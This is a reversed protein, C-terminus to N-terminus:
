LTSDSINIWSLLEYRGVVVWLIAVTANRHHADGLSDVIVDVDDVARKSEVCRHFLRHVHHATGTCTSGGNTKREHNRKNKKVSHAGRSKCVLISHSRTAGNAHSHVNIEMVM